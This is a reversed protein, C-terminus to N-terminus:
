LKNAIETHFGRSAFTLCAYWKYIRNLLVVTGLLIRDAPTTKCVHHGTIIQPVLTEGGLGGLPWLAPKVNKFMLNATQRNPQQM